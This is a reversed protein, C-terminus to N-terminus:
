RYCLSSGKHPGTVDDVTFPLAFDGPQLGSKLPPDAGASGAALASVALVAVYLVGRRM